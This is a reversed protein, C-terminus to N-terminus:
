HARHQPLGHSPLTTPPPIQLLCPAPPLPRLLPPTLPAPPHQLLIPLTPPQLILIPGQRPAKPRNLWRKCCLGCRSTSLARTTICSYLNVFVLVLVARCGFGIHESDWYYARSPSVLLKLAILLCSSFFVFPASSPPFLFMGSSM